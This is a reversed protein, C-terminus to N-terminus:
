RWDDDDDEEDEKTMQWGLHKEFEPTFTLTQGKNWEELQTVIDPLLWDKGNRLYISDRVVDNSVGDVILTEVDDKAEKIETIDQASQEVSDQFNLPHKGLVLPFNEANLETVPASKLTPTWKEGGEDESDSDYSDYEDDDEFDSDDEDYDNEHQQPIGQLAVV